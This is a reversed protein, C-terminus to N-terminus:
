DWADRRTKHKFKEMVDFSNARSLGFAFEVDITKELCVLVAEMIEPYKEPNNVFAFM